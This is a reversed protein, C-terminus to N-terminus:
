IDIYYLYMFNLGCSTRTTEQAYLIEVLTHLNDHHNHMRQKMGPVFLLLGM